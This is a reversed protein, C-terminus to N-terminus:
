TPTKWADLQGTQNLFFTAGNWPWTCHIWQHEAPIERPTGVGVHNWPGWNFISIKGPQVQIKQEENWDMIWLLFFRLFTTTTTTEILKWISPQYSSLDWKSPYLPPHDKQGATRKWSSVNQGLHKPAVHPHTQLFFFSGLKTKSFLEHFNGNTFEKGSKTNKCGRVPGSTETKRVTKMLWPTPRCRSRQNWHIPFNVGPSTFNVHKNKFTANQHDLIYHSWYM